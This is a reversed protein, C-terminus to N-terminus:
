ELYKTTIKEKARLDRREEAHKKTLKEVAKEYSKITKQM